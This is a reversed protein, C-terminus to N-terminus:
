VMLPAIASVQVEIARQIGVFTMLLSNVSVVDSSLFFAPFFQLQSSWSIGFWFIFSLLARDRCIWFNICTAFCFYHSVYRTFLLVRSCVAYVPLPLQLSLIIILRRRTLCLTSGLGQCQTRFQRVTCYRSYREGCGSNLEAPTSCNMRENYRLAPLTGVKTSNSM